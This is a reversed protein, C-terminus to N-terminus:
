VYKKYMDVLMFLCFYGSFVHWWSRINYVHMYRDKMGQIHCVSVAARSVPVVALPAFIRILFFGHLCVARCAIESSYVYWVYMCLSIAMGGLCMCYICYVYLIHLM